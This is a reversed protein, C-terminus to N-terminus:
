TDWFYCSVWHGPTVEELGPPQVQCTPQGIPCRSAFRCGAPPRIPSPPEGELLAMQQAASEPFAAAMLARTYPHLPRDFVADREALEVIQGLYM